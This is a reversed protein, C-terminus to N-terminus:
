RGAAGEGTAGSHPAAGSTLEARSSEDTNSRETTPAATPRDVTPEWDPLLLRRLRRYLLDGDRNRGHQRALDCRAAYRDPELRFEEHLDTIRDVIEAASNAHMAAEDCRTHTPLPSSIVPTGSALAENIAM